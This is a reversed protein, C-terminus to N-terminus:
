LTRRTVGVYEYEEDKLEFTTMVQNIVYNKFGLKYLTTQLWTMACNTPIGTALHTFNMATM